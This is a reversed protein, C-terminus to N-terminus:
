VGVTTSRKELIVLSRWQKIKEDYGINERLGVRRFGCKEHLALSPQNDAFVRSEICWLGHSESEELLSLMLQKGLGQGRCTADLYISVEAVGKFVARESVPSLAVWGLVAEGQALVLRCISLHSQDWELYTPAQNQFTAMKTAIGQEYIAAVQAWDSTNMARVVIPNM